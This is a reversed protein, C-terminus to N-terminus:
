RDRHNWEHKNETRPEEFSGNYYFALGHGFSTKVLMLKAADIALLLCSALAAVKDVPLRLALIHGAQDARFDIAQNDAVIPLLKIDFRLCGLRM